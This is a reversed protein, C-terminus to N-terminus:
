SLIGAELMRQVNSQPTWSLVRTTSDTKLDRGISVKTDTFDFAKKTLRQLEKRGKQIHALRESKTM